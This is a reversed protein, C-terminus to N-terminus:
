FAAGVEQAAVTEEEGEEDAKEALMTEVRYTEGDTTVTVAGVQSTNLVRIKKERCLDWVAQFHVDVTKGPKYHFIVVEPTVAALMAVPNVFKGGLGFEPVQYITSQIGDKLGLLGESAKQNILSTLLLSVKGYQIRLVTSNADSVYNGEFRRSPPNLVTIQFPKGRIEKSPVIDMGYSAGSVPIEKQWAYFILRHSQLFKEDARYVSKTERSAKEFKARLEQMYAVIDGISNVFGAKQYVFCLAPIPLDTIFQRYEEPPMLPLNWKKALEEAKARDVPTGLKERTSMTSALLQETAEGEQKDLWALDVEAEQRVKADQTQLFAAL